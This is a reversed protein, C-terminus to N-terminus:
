NQFSFSRKRLMHSLLMTSREKGATTSWIANLNGGGGGWRDAAKDFVRNFVVIM